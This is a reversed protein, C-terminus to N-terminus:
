KPGAGFEPIAAADRLHDPVFRAYVRETTATNTHGMYQSIQAMPVGAAAMHVTYTHRLSHPTVDDLGANKVARTFGRKISKVPKGAWEIVYPSLAAARADQLAARARNNIPVVARGKRPGTFDTRLIIQGLEIDVRDWTLELLM